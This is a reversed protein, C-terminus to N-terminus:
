RGLRSVNFIINLHSKECAVSLYRAYTRELSSKGSNAQSASIVLSCPLACVTLLPPTIGLSYALFHQISQLTHHSGLSGRCLQLLCLVPGRRAKTRLITLSGNQQVLYLRSFPLPLSDKTWRIDPAPDGRVVCDLQISGGVPEVLYSFAEGQLVPAEILALM